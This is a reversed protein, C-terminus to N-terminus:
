FMKGFSLACSENRFEVRLIKWNKKNMPDITTAVVIERNPNV